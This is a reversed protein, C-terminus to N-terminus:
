DRAPVEDDNSWAADVGEKGHFTKRLRDCAVAVTESIQATKPSTQNADSHWRNCGYPEM